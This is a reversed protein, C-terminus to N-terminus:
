PFSFTSSRQGLALQSRANPLVDSGASRQILARRVAMKKAKLLRQNRIVQAGRESRFDGKLVKAEALMSSPMPPRLDRHM